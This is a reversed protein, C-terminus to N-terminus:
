KKNKDLTFTFKTGIGVKSSIVIKQKHAEIIHKVISLGLGTGGQERSRHKEVRYFREFVRGVHEDSIGIGNDRVEISVLEDDSEDIGVSVYGNNKGYKVANSILNTLIDTVRLEDAFVWIAHESKNKIQLEINKQNALYEFQEFIEEVLNIIDFKAKHLKMGGSEFKSIAELDNVVSIMRDVSKEARSLYLKNVEPDNIAGELLTLIYGQINFIPTKLEHSVNGLYERRYKELGKLREIEEIQSDGYSDSFVSTPRVKGRNKRERSKITEVIDFALSHIVRKFLFFSVVFSSVVIILATLVPLEKEIYYFIICAIVVIMSAIASLKYISRNYTNSEM